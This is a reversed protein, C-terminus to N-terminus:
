IGAGVEHIQRAQEYVTVNAGIRHLALAATAGAYGGGVIAIDLNKLEEAKM